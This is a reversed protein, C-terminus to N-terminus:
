SELWETDQLVSLSVSPLSAGSPVKYTEEHDHSGENEVIKMPENMQEKEIVATVSCSVSIIALVFVIAKILNNVRSGRRTNRKFCDVM